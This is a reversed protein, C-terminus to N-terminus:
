RTRHDDAGRLVGPVGLVFDAGFAQAPTLAGSPRDNLVREVCNLAVLATFQYPEPTILWCEASAGQPHCARAWVYTRERARMGVDPGRMTRDILWGAGNRLAGISLLRGALPAVLSALPRALSSLALYTTISPIGTSRYATELDALPVPLVTRDGIPFHVRTAGAGLPWPLLRGARRVWGGQPLLELMSRATGASPRTLYTMAIDLQLAGPVQAAVYVALCDSPVVDFGVGSILAVGARRAAEDRAFTAQFVPIEGTLDLYHAGTALCADIMPASTRVFPGAAHYVLEVRGIAKQLAAQDALDVAIWDLGLREALPALKEASRGALLPRQGRRVAEMAVLRGTYGYAGYIMWRHDAM